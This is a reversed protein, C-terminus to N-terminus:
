QPPLFVAVSDPCRSIGKTLGTAPWDTRHWAYSHEGTLVLDWMVPKGDDTLRTEGRIRGRIHSRTSEQIDYTTTDHIQGSSDPTAPTHVVYMVADGASFLIRHFVTDCGGPAGDWSWRGAAITFISQRDLVQYVTPEWPRWLTFSGIAIGAPLGLLLLLDSYFARKEERTPLMPPTLKPIVPYSSHRTM